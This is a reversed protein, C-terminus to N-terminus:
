KRIINTITTKIIRYYRIQEKATNFQRSLILYKFNKPFRNGVPKRM